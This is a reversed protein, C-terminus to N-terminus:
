GSKRPPIPLHGRRRCSHGNIGVLPQGRFEIRFLEPLLLREGDSVVNGLVINGLRARELGLSMGGFRLQKAPHHSFGGKHQGIRAALTNCTLLHAHIESCFVPPLSASPATFRIVSFIKQITMTM